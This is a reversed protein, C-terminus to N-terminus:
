NGAGARGITDWTVQGGYAAFTMGSVTAGELNVASAPVSIKVWGGATPLAGANYCGPTNNTGWSIQNAGWYARHEYSSGDYWCMMIETPTSSPNLYVWATLTDGTYVKMSGQQGITTQDDDMGGTSGAFSIDHEGSKNGSQFALSGTHSSSVWNWSDGGDSGTTANAPLADDIWTQSTGNAQFDATAFARRGDAWEVEVEVWQDGDNVPTFTFTSGYAPLQDRAEWVIRAGTLSQGAVTVSATVSNGLAVTSTPVTITAQPAVWPTTGASTLGALFGVSIFSRADNVTIQETTVNYADSWRDYYPFTVGNGSDSPYSLNTLSSGYQNLYEFGATIQGVVNGTPSLVRRSSQAYQSVTQQQRKMGLGEIYCVNVPNSGGEYNMAAVLSDIYSQKANVQYAIAMDSAQDLSFYWGGGLVAKTAPPFPTGYACANTYAVANDGAAVIQDNCAALYNADLAGASLRGSKAAFAYDRIANGWGESMQWWGWRFTSSDAPNPFWAFLQTQYSSNGTAAYMAAAAWALEDDHTWDDGYFTLKQYAGAKGYKSIANMLFTWGAQAKAMYNAAAAPYYKIMAPSSGAEAMAAVGAATASTNKPWVVQTQGNEPLVGSEYESNLPYVLFYFGGDTDQLKAVYDAEWKAEQLADPIGDGSEPIGLNDYTQIGPINDVAFILEHILQTSNITYKSYDGADFHGGSVDVSGTRQYPFLAKANSTLFPAIQTPNSSNVTTAYGGITTWTFNFKATTDPVLAPATHDAAHTFRTYPLSVAMGSRQEYMGLSYTRAWAMAIGEDILFPLSAGMGSVQVQYQGPTTYGSFDAVYVQQYPLPNTEYGTDQRLTLTGTYVVAGTVANILNFGPGTPIPMEGMDGLYYGVQAQKTFEPVYGEQNVHIAPSYRQPTTLAQFQLSSGFISSDPNTVTVLQNDSVSANIQLYLSNQIRLDYSNLPAYLVRRKFGVATVSVTQGGVTVTFESGAPLSAAGSTNVFNWTAPSSAGQQQTTILTLELLTPTLVRLLNAGVKPLQLDTDDVYNGSAIADSARTAITDAGGTTVPSTTTTGVPTPTTVPPITTVPTTPTTPTVPATPTVPTTSGTSAAATAVITLTASSASGLVYSGDNAAALTFVATEPNANTSNARATVSLTTTTSGAPITVSTPMDGQPLRYYDTWKAATGTLSFNITQATATSGTRSFTLLGVQNGDISATANTAAVTLTPTASNAPSVGTSSTNNSTTGIATIPNTGYATVTSVSAAVAATTVDYVEALAAGSGGNVSMVSVSYSGPALTVLLASDLSGASLTFAGSQSFATQLLSSSVGGAIATSWDDNEAIVRGQSDMLQIAPNSLTGSVGFSSLSPGVGRVLLTRNSSGSLVFGTVVSGNAAGSVAARSSLNILSATGSATVEYVELLAVGTNGGATTVQATYTGPNLTLVVAADQSGSALTFAGVSAMTAADSTKWTTIPGAVVAGSSNYITLSPDALPNSIGYSSLSPGVARILVTEGTTGGISLGGAVSQSPTVLVRNSLNVLRSDARVSLFPVIVGLLAAVLWRCIAVQKM